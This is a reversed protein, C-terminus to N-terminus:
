KLVKLIEKVDRQIESVAAEMRAQDKSFQEKIQHQDVSYREIRVYKDPMIDVKNYVQLAIFSLLGIFLTVLIKNYGANQKIWEVM